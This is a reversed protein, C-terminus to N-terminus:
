ALRGNNGHSALEENGQPPVGGGADDDLPRSSPPAPSSSVGDTLVQDTRGSGPPRVSIATPRLLRGISHDRGGSGWGGSAPHQHLRVAAVAHSNSSNCYEM